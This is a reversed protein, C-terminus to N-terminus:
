DGDPPPGLSGLVGGDAVLVSATVYSSEDCALFLAVQAIEGPQGIRKLPIQREFWRRGGPVMKVFELFPPTEISGPCIANARIGHAANEVAVTKTLNILAAKAAGYAGLAPVGGFGAASATNIISGGGHQRMIPIVARMSYLASDLTTTLVTRWVEDTISDVTGLLPAAANNMLVDITGCSRAAEAVMANVQAPDAADATIATARGGAAEIEAAVAAAAEGRIDNVVVRAGEEAFRLACARGIGQGGATVLAVKGQLRTGM